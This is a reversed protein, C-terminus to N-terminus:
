RGGGRCAFARSTSVGLLLARRVALKLRFVYIGVSDLETNGRRWEIGYLKALPARARGPIDPFVLGIAIADAATPFWHRDGGGSGASALRSFSGSIAVEGTYTGSLLSSPNVTVTVPTAGFAPVTGGGSITLFSGGSASVQIAQPTGSHSTVPFSREVAGAGAVLSFSIGGSDATLAPGTGPNVVLTGSEPVTLPYGALSPSVSIVLDAHAVYTGPTTPTGSILGASSLTIGPPLTSVDPVFSITITYGASQFTPSSLGTAALVDYTYPVGVTAQPLVAPATTQAPASISGVLALSVLVGVRKYPKM